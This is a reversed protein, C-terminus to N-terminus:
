LVAYLQKTALDHGVRRSGMSGMAQCPGRDMPIELCSHQLPNGYGGGPSKGWGSVSGMDGSDGTNCASEKGM